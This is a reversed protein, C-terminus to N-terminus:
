PETATRVTGHIVGEAVHLTQRNPPATHELKIVEYLRTHKRYPSCPSGRKPYRLLYGQNSM